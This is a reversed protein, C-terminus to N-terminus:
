SCWGTIEQLIEGFIEETNWPNRWLSRRFISATLPLFFILSKQLRKLYNWLCSYVPYQPSKLSNEPLILPNWTIEPTASLKRSCTQILLDPVDWLGRLIGRLPSYVKLVRQFGESGNRFAGSVNYYNLIRKTKFIKLTNLNCISVVFFNVMENFWGDMGYVRLILACWRHSDQHLSWRSIKAM